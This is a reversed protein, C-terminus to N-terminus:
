ILHVYTSPPPSNQACAYFIVLIIKISVGKQPVWRCALATLPNKCMIAWVVGVRALIHRKPIKECLEENVPTLGGSFINQPMFLRKWALSAFDFFTCIILVVVYIGVLNQVTICVVLHGKHTTGVCADCIWSPLRGGDKFFDFFRWIETETWAIEIFNSM